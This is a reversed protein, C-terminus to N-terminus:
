HLCTIYQGVEKLWKDSGLEKAAYEVASVGEKNLKGLYTAHSFNLDRERADKISIGASSFFLYYYHLYGEVKWLQNPLEQYNPGHHPHSLELFPCTTSAQM